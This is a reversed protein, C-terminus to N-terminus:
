GFRFVIVDEGMGVRKRAVEVPEFKEIGDMPTLSSVLLFIVGGKKLHKKAERLFKVSAEDGRKGGTTALRSDEPEREDLPLYPANFSIVDLLVGEGVKLFLDSHCAEFGKESALKVADANLDVCLVNEIECDRATEALIASGCGMDCYNIDKDLLQNFYEELVNAMLYSDDHPQYIQM